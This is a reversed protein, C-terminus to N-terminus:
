DRKEFQNFIEKLRKSVNKIQYEPTSAGGTIGVISSGSIWAPDIEEETEIHHVRAGAEECITVLRSTNASNRGGVVFIVDARSALLHAGEQRLYTASCITNFVKLESATPLLHNIAKQLSSPSQTTQVVIGIRDGLDKPPQDDMEVVVANDGAYGKIGIIEPHNREGVIVVQYGENLLKKACQQAKKVFPCTADVVKLGKNEAEKLVGPEVGHSRIIVTGSTIRGLDDIAKVGKQTLERVVAPNHIIPGLTYIDGSLQAAAERTIKLAREVGYCYGAHEAIEIKLKDPM